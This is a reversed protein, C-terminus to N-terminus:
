SGVFTVGDSAVSVAIYVTAVDDIELFVTEGAALEYGNASTMASDGVYVIGTNSAEAKINLGSVVTETSGIAAVTTTSAITKKGNIISSPLSVSTVDVDGIDVGSNATLKGIGNTGAPLAADITASAWLRGNDMQLFEYDGDTGSTDAPTAKRVALMGVGTDGGASAADEAKGLNAAATGPVVDDVNHHPTHVTATDTTKVTVTVAGADKVDINNAM